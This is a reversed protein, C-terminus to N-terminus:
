EIAWFTQVISHVLSREVKTIAKGLLKGLATKDVAGLNPESVQRKEKKKEKVVWMM